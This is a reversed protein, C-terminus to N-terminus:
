INQNKQLIWNDINEYFGITKDNDVLINDGNFMKYLIEYRILFSIKVNYTYRVRLWTFM